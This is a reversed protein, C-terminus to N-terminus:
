GTEADRGIAWYGRAVCFEVVLDSEEFEFVRKWIRLYVELEKVNFVLRIKRLSIAIPKQVRESVERSLNGPQGCGLAVDELDHAYWPSL